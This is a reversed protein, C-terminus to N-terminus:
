ASMVWRPRNGQAVCTAVTSGHAHWGTRSQRMATHPMDAIRDSEDNGFGEIRCAVCRLPQIDVVLRQRRDHVTGCRQLRTRRQQPVLNRAVQRESKLLTVGGCHGGGERARRVTDLHSTLLRRTM